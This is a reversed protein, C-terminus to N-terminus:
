PRQIILCDFVRRGEFLSSIIGCSLIDPSRITASFATKLAGTASSKKSSDDDDELSKGYNEDWLSMALLGCVILTLMSIDFPGLYGGTYFGSDESTPKFEAHNAARNAIQGAHIAIISNGYQASSFSKGL